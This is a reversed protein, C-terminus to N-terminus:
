VVETMEVRTDDRERVGAFHCKAHKFRPIRSIAQIRAHLSSTPPSIATRQLVQSFLGTKLPILNASLPPNSSTTRPLRNFAKLNRTLDL